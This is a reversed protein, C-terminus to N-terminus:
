AFVMGIKLLSKKKQNKHYNWNTRADYLRANAKANKGVKALLRCLEILWGM